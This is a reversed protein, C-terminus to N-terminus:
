RRRRREVRVPVPVPAPDRSSRAQSVLALLGAMGIGPILSSIIIRM